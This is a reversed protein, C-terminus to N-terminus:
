SATHLKQLLVSDAQVQTVCVAENSTGISRSARCRLWWKALGVVLQLNRLIMLVWKSQCATNFILLDSAIRGVVVVLEDQRWSVSIIGM